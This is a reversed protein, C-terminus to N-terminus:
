APDAMADLRAHPECSNGAAFRFSDVFEISRNICVLVVGADAFKSAAWVENAACFEVRRDGRSSGDSM